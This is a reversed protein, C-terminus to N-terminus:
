RRGRGLGKSQLMRQKAAEKKQRAQEARQFHGEFATFVDIAKAPQDFYGGPFPLIGKKWQHYSSLWSLVSESVFNGICTHFKIGDLVWLPSDRHETCAKGVRKSQVADQGRPDSLCVSCQFDPNEVAQLTARIEIWDGSNLM